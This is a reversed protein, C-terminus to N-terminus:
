AVKEWYNTKGFPTVVVHKVFTGRNETIRSGDAYADGVTSLYMTGLAQPGVPDSVPVNVDSPPPDYPPYDAVDLSVKISGKPPNKADYAQAGPAGLGPAITVAPQLATPVWTYGAESRLKMVLYPDWGYVMIPVDVAFGQVALVSARQVRADYEGIDILTRLDPPQHLRYASDFVEQESM